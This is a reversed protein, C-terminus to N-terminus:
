PVDFKIDAAEIITSKNACGPALWARTCIIPQGVKGGSGLVRPRDTDGIRDLVTTDWKKPPRTGDTAAVLVPARTAGVGRGFPEKDRCGAPLLLHHMRRLPISEKDDEWIVFLYEVQEPKDAGDLWVKRTKAAMEADGRTIHVVSIRAGGHAALTQLRISEAEAMNGNARLAQCYIDEGLWTYIAPRDNWEVVRPCPTARMQRAYALGAEYQGANLAHNTMLLLAERRGPDTKYAEHFFALKHEPNQAMQALNLNVEYKEAKGVDPQSLFRRAVEISEPVKNGLALELHLHYLLGTTLQEDPLSELIRLNRENSGEKEYTPLHTIVVRPEEMGNAPQIHYNFYEHVAHDWRGAARRILRDRPLMLGRGLLRYPFLYCDCKAEEALERIINHGGELVDDTDAWLCYDASALDFSMQRAAAFDDIHPWDEHGSKNKYEAWKFPKGALRAVKEALDLTGDQAQNGIARVIVVEDAAPMFSNLCREIYEVCNGTIICLSVKIKRDM